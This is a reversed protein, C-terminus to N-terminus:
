WPTSASGAWWSPWRMLIVPAAVLLALYGPVQRLPGEAYRAVAQPDTLTHRNLARPPHEGLHRDVEQPSRGALLVRGMSTAYAPFRTGIQVTLAVIKPVAVRAVYVIDSGDLQAISCSEGTRAVLRELLHFEHTM